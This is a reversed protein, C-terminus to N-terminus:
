GGGHGPPLVAVGAVGPRPPAPAAPTDAPVALSLLRVAFLVVLLCGDPEFHVLVPNILLLLSQVSSVSGVMQLVLPNVLLHYKEDERFRKM